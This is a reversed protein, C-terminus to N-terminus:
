REVKVSLGTREALSKEKVKAGLLDAMWAENKVATGCLGSTSAGSWDVKMVAERERGQNIVICHDDAPKELAQALQSPVTICASKGGVEGSRFNVTFRQETKGGKGDSVEIRFTQNGARPTAWTLLGTSADIMAGKPAELLRYTLTDGDVDSTKAQYTFATNPRAFGSAGIVADNFDRDGGHTLDEWGLTLGGSSTWTGHLHDFKDPNAAQASFFVHPGKGVSNAANKSRWQATSANQILFFGVYQGAALQATAKAGTGAGSKFLVIARDAALAAAAYGADGPKLNGIRGSADDVRYLGIENNYAADRSQWNISLTTTSGVAGGVQFVDDGVLPM